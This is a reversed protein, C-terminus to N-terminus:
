AGASLDEAGEAASPAYGTRILVQKSAGQGYTQITAGPSAKEVAARVKDIDPANEFNVILQTGSEFEVGYRLGGTAVLALSAAVLLASVALCVKGIGLFDFNPNKLFQM